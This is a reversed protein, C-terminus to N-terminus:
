SIRCRKHDYGIGVSVNGGGTDSATGCLTKVIDLLTNMEDKVLLVYYM